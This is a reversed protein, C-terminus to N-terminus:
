RGLDDQPGESAQCGTAVEELSRSGKSVREVQGDRVRLGGVM